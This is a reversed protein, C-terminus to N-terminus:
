KKIAIIEDVIFKLHDEELNTADTLIKFVDARLSKDTILQWFKKMLDSNLVQHQALKKFIDASQLVIKDSTQNKDWILDFVQERNM